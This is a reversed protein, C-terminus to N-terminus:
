IKVLVGKVFHGSGGIKLLQFALTSAAQRYFHQVSGSTAFASRMGCDRLTKNKMMLARTAPLTRNRPSSFRLLPLLM